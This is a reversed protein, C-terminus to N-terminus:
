YTHRLKPYKFLSRNLVSRAALYKLSPVGGKYFRKGSPKTFAVVGRGPRVNYYKARCALCHGRYRSNDVHRQRAYSKKPSVKKKIYKGM